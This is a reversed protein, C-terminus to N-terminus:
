INPKPKQELYTWQLVEEAFRKTLSNYIIHQKFSGRHTKYKYSRIGEERCSNSCYKAWSRTRQFEVGCELCIARGYNPDKGGHRKRLWWKMHCSISCFRQWKRHKPYEKGCYECLGIPYQSVKKRNIITQRSYKPIYFGGDLIHKILATENNLEEEWIILCNYGFEAFHKIRIEVGDLAHWHNGFLEILKKDGISSVFDPCKGGIKLQGNGVYEWENPFYKDLIIQLRLEARNPRIYNVVVARRIAKNRRRPISKGYVICNFLELHGNFINDVM